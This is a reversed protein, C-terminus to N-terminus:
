TPAPRLRRELAKALEVALVISASLLAIAAWLSLPLPRLHLLSRTWPTLLLGLHITGSALCALVLPRPLRPRQAFLSARPSRCNWAHALPCFGLFAFVATRGIEA